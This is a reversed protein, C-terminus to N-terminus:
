LRSVPDVHIPRMLGEDEAMALISLWSLAITTAAM